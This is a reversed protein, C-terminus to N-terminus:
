KLRERVYQLAEILHDIEASLLYAYMTSIQVTTDGDKWRLDISGQTEGARVTITHSTCVNM